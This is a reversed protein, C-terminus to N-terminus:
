AEVLAAVEGTLRDVLQDDVPHGCRAMWTALMRHGGETLVSEPHFQVGEVPLERHQVAMIVGSETHGTARLADPMSDPRITLSHYRTATFPNPLGALVGTGDHHVLSTKGHLLEPAREVIGGYVAGIAQHGLCVGLLPVGRAACREIVAMSRGARDPTSPGPSVLVGDVDDVEDLEVADNRRVTTDAGLQALYQVLNYVFSDYNDVVLVRM